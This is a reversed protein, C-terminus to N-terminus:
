KGRLISDQRQLMLMLSDLKLDTARLGLGMLLGLRMREMGIIVMLLEVWSVHGHISCFCVLLRWLGM